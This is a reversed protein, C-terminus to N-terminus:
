SEIGRPGAPKPRMAVLAGFVGASVLAMSGLLIPLYFPKPAIEDGEMAVLNHATVLAELPPESIKWGTYAEFARWLFVGAFLVPFLLGLHIGISGVTRNHPLRMALIACVAIITGAVLGSMVATRARDDFGSAAWAGFGAAALFLAYGFLVLPSRLKHTAPPTAPATAPSTM